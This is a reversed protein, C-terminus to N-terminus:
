QKEYILVCVWGEHTKLGVILIQRIMYYVNYCSVCHISGIVSIFALLRNIQLVNTLFMHRNFASVIVNTPFMLIVLVRYCFSASIIFCPLHYLLLTCLFLGMDIAM